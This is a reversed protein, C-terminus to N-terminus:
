QCVVGVDAEGEHIIYFNDGDDGQHIIYEDENKEVMFMADFIDQKEEVDLHKFLINNEIAKSIAQKTKEDKPIVQIYFSSQLGPKKLHKM